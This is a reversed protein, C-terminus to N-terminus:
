PAQVNGPQPAPMSSPVVRYNTEPPPANPDHLLVSQGVGVGAGVNGSSVGVGVGAGGYVRGGTDMSVGAGIPGIGTGLGISPGGSGVGVGLSLGPLLPIVIGVGGGVNSCGAAGLAAAAFTALLAWRRVGTPRVESPLLSPTFSVAAM